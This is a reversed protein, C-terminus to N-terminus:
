PYVSIIKDISTKTILRCTPSGVGCEESNYIEETPTILMNNRESYSSIVNMFSGNNFYYDQLYYNLTCGYKEQVEDEKDLGINSLLLTVISNDTIIDSEIKNSNFIINGSNIYTIVDEYYKSLESKLESMSIKNKGSINIGRLLVIYKM